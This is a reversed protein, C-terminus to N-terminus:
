LLDEFVGKERRRLSVSLVAGQMTEGEATGLDDSQLVRRARGYGM